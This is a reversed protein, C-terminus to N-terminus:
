CNWRQFSKYHVSNESIIKLGEKVLYEYGDILVCGYRLYTGDGSNGDDGGDGDGSNGDDDGSNGDNGYEVYDNVLHM